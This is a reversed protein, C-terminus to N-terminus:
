VLWGLNKVYNQWTGGDPAASDAELREWCEAPFTITYKGANSTGAHNVLHAIIDKMSAVSLNTSHQFSVSRGIAGQFRIEKLRRLYDYTAVFTQTGDDSVIVLEITHIGQSYSFTAQTKNGCKRFDLIGLKTLATYHFAHNMNTCNSTDLEVGLNELHAVLDINLGYNHRFMGEMNTPRMDYRPALTEPTENCFFYAYGERKGYDQRIDWYRQMAAEKGADFVKQENEAITALQHATSYTRVHPTLTLNNVEAVILIEIHLTGGQPLTIHKVEDGYPTVIIGTSVEYYVLADQSAGGDTSVFYDGAPLEIDRVLWTAVPITNPTGNITVSGDGNDTFTIGDSHEKLYPYPYIAVDKTQESM